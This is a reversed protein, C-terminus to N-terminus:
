RCDASKGRDRLGTRLRDALVPNALAIVQGRGTLGLKGLVNSVHYKVTRVTISLREAMNANSLGAALLLMVERERATLGANAVLSAPGEGAAAALDVLRAALPGTLWANNRGVATVAQALDGLNVNADALGRAGARLLEVLHEDSGGALLVVVGVGLESRLGRVLETTLPLVDEAVVVDAALRRAEEPLRAASDLEGVVTLDPETALQARVSRRWARYRLCLLVRVGARRGEDIVGM